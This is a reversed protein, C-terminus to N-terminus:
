QCICITTQRALTFLVRCNSKCSAPCSNIKTEDPSNRCAKRGRPKLRSVLTSSYVLKLQRNSKPNAIPLIYLWDEKSCVVILNKQGLIIKCIFPTVLISILSIQRVSDSPYEIMLSFSETAMSSSLNPIIICQTSWTAAM